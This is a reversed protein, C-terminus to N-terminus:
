FYGYKQMFNNNINNLRVGALSFVKVGVELIQGYGGCRWIGGGCVYEVVHLPILEPAEGIDVLM